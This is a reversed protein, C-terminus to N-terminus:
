KMQLLVSIDDLLDLASQLEPPLQAAGPYVQIGKIQGDMYVNLAQVLCDQCAEPAGYLDALSWFAESEVLTFLPAVQLPDLMWTEGSSALVYGTPYFTWQVPSGPFAGEQVYVLITQPFVAARGGPEAEAAPTESGSSPAPRGLEAQAPQAPLTATLQIATRLIATETPAVAQSPTKATETAIAPTGTQRSCASCIWALGILLVMWVKM